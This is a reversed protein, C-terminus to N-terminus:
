GADVFEEGVAGVRDAHRDDTLCQTCAERAGGIVEHFPGEFQGASEHKVWRGGEQPPNGAGRHLTGADVVAVQGADVAAQLGAVAADDHRRDIPLHRALAEHYLAVDRPEGEAVRVQGDKGHLFEAFPQDPAHHAERDAPM